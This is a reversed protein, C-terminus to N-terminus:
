SIPTQFKYVKETGGEIIPMFQFFSTTENTAADIYTM